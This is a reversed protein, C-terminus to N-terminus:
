NLKRPDTIEGMIAAAIVAAPSALYIEAKPNGMRGKFNRNSASICVEGDGLIGQHGGYCPGCGPPIVTGGAAIFTQIYGANMAELLVQRSAPGVILRVSPHIRHGKLLEAAIRLDDTRANTCSGLFAQQVKTGAVEALDFVNDINHPRAIQPELADVNIEIIREYNADADAKIEAYERLGVSECWARTTEDFPVVACKAGMEVGFNTLTFRESMTMREVASGCFEIARYQAGDARLQKAIALIVDKAYVGPQLAGNATVRITTPVRLWLHGTAFVYAMESAGIPIGLAGTVGYSTSHSDKGFILSGPVTYGREFMVQHCIGEGVDHFRAIGHQRAFERVIGHQNASAVSFAPTEHDLMLIIKDAEWVNRAGLEAFYKMVIASTASASMVADPQVDVIEGPVVHDRGSKLALIKEAMTMPKTSLTRASARVRTGADNIEAVEAKAYNIIGGAQLIQMLFEPLPHFTTEGQPSRLMGATFDIAITDGDNVIREAEACEIVLLGQNIANRFFIRSFSPAIVAAIGAYKLATAAQERSSGSGFNRGAVLIDGRQIKHPFGAGYDELVHAALEAPERLVLYRGPFIVDTNVDDGLRHARGLIQTHLQSM